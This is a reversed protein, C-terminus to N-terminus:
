VMKLINKIFESKSETYKPLNNKHEEALKIKLKEYEIRASENQLLYDRFKLQELLLKDGKQHMHIQHTRPNGKSFYHRNPLMDTGRYEYSLYKLPEACNEGDNFDHIEIAIDIIPKASLGKISTSGVHHIDVIYEGIVNEIRKKELLFEEQWTDTWQTLFVEGKPLGIM